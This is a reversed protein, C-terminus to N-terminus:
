TSFVSGLLYWPETYYPIWYVTSYHKGQFDHDNLQNPAPSSRSVSTSLYFGCSQRDWCALFEWSLREDGMCGVLSLDTTAVKLLSVFLPDLSGWTWKRPHQCSIWIEISPRFTGTLTHEPSLRALLITQYIALVVHFRKPTFLNGRQSGDPSRKEGEGLM